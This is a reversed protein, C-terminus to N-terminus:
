YEKEADKNIEAVRKAVEEVSVVASNVDNHQSDGFMRPAMKAAHWKRIEYDLKAKGLMGSDIRENGYQDEYTPIEESLDLMSDALVAAQSRRANFYQESFEKHDFIWAYITSPHPFDEYMRQLKRLGCEHTAIMKCVYTALEPTYTTPRGGPHKAAKQEQM